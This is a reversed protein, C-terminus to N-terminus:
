TPRWKSRTLTLQVCGIHREEFGAECYALYYEWLRKFEARESVSDYANPNAELNARWRRITEAYDPTLDSLSQIRFDTVRSVRDSIANISPLFGGPFVYKKIFDVHRRSREYHQDAIVIAQLGMMGNPLLRDNCVQFFTDLYEAGVAEIMEISVLRDFRGELNRYDQFLVEVQEELGAKEVRSKAEEFQARSITTTTVHCGYRTAAHLAFGGWGTGIELLRHGPRLDLARCLRDYKESQAEELTEAGTAFSAASYTMSPDLMAAYFSNGLDYHAAINRRSGSESNRVLRAMLRRGISACRALPSDLRGKPGVLGPESLLLRMLATPDPCSWDGDVWARGAGLSGELVIRLYTRASHIHVAIPAADENGFSMPPDSGEHVIVCGTRLRSFASLAIRRAIREAPTRLSRSVNISTSVASEAM